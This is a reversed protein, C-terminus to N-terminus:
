NGQFQPCFGARVAVDSQVILFLGTHCPTDLPITLCDRAAQGSPLCGQFLTKPTAAQLAYLQLAHRAM